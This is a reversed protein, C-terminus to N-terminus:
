ASYYNKKSIYKGVCDFFQADDKSIYVCICHVVVTIALFYLFHFWMIFMFSVMANIVLVSRPAGMVLIHETLARHFPLHDWSIKDEM